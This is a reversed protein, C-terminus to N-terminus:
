IREMVCILSVVWPKMCRKEANGMNFSRPYFADLHRRSGRIGGTTFFSTMSYNVAKQIASFSSHARDAGGFADVKYRM